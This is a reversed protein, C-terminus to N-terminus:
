QKELLINRSRYNNAFTYGSYQSMLHRLQQNEPQSLAINSYHGSINTNPFDLMWPMALVQLFVGM